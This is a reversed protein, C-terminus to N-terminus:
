YATLNKIFFANSEVTMYDEIDINKLWEIKEQEVKLEEFAKMQYFVLPPRKGYVKPKTSLMLEREFKEGNIEM